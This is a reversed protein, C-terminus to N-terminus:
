TLHYSLHYTHERRNKVDSFYDRLFSPFICFNMKLNRSNHHLLSVTSNFTHKRYVEKSPNKQQNWLTKPKKLKKHFLGNISLEYM